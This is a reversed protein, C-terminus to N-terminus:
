PGDGKSLSQIEHMVADPTRTNLEAPVRDQRAPELTKGVEAYFDSRAKLDPFHHIAWPSAFGIQAYRQLMTHAFLIYAGKLFIPAFPKLEASAFDDVFKLGPANMETGVVVPLGRDNALAVIQQLNQLKQDQVGPTYNRDPIINVALVGSKMQLDLLEELRQEGESLGNLWTLAPLGGAELVFHNMATMRPFSHEDPKVYGVSGQKMTKARIRDILKPGKPLDLTSADVGLKESWFAALADGTFQHAAKLAYVKCIHRETANGAPTLPLVDADYDVILPATFTNVRDILDRNRRESTTRLSQLFREEPPNLPRQPMGIGMHYAIGPEGPSNIVADAFEPIFVRSEIGACTRLNLLRGAELFEELGDLVDFDVIGAATLGRSHALWALHSPSYDDANFSFFSHMHLNVWGPPVREGDHSQGKKAWEKLLSSRVNLDFHDIDNVNM